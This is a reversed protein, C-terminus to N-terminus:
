RNTYEAAMELKQQNQSPDAMGGFRWHRLASRWGGKADARQEARQQSHPADARQKANSDTADQRMAHQLMAINAVRPANCTPM